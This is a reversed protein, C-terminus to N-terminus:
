FWFTERVGGLTEGVPESAVWMDVGM